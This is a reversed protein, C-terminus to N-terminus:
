LPYLNAYGFFDFMDKLAPCAQEYTLPYGYGDIWYFELDEAYEFIQMNLFLVFKYNSTHTFEKM